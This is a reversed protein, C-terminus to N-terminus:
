QAHRALSQTDLMFGAASRVAPDRGHLHFHGASTVPKDDRKFTPVATRAAVHAALVPSVARIPKFQLFVATGAPRVGGVALRPLSHDGM